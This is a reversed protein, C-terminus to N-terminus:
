KTALTNSLKVKQAIDGHPMSASSGYTGYTNYVKMSTGGAESLPLPLSRTLDNKQMELFQIIFRSKPVSKAAIKHEVRCLHCVIVEINQNIKSLRPLCKSCM